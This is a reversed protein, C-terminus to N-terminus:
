APAVQRKPPVGFREALSYLSWSGMMLLTLIDDLRDRRRKPTVLSM